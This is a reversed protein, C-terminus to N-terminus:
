HKAFHGLQPVNPKWAPREVVEGYLDYEDSDEIRAKVIDGINILGAFDGAYLYVQGDIGPADGKTRGILKTGPADDEDDNFEDIIVDMVRGVKEALKEASIRQAVEMFRALREEKTQEPVPNDLANADAEEVDSYTFAGVRDLRAEELFTLLEQFEQETEGPFGVIFTSRIVLEPCIERWRRITDLQKGAGPRRMRRLVAPSAHQLPVDLYPLIKGQAMLAVIKEVHPYPYVYHMRVWVGMEGLNEALDTLHARVQGGQFESERYRVDVGYASTDQSIIMLEKTGGAILRYAEYLVAGADRSVQRGRLKPIICFACTHNCGEAIKVYAFHRPTLKVTPGLLDEEPRMGHAAVPLLGTFTDTEIPLLERVHGMVDDVAESGTIAAVKPHRELIKEPREGLCGTVIVKGTADLAEGIASLSEEVAPTIFGCTNVIVAQADEYSPAVEYGEARLQTLIRESDVLAKPCGLSIFGVKPVAVTPRLEEVTM